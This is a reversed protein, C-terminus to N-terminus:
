RKQGHCVVALTAKMGYAWDIVRRERDSLVWFTQDDLSAMRDTDIVPLVPKPPVSCEPTVTM